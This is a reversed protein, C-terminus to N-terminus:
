IFPVFLSYSLPSIDACCEVGPKYPELSSFLSLSAVLVPCPIRCVRVATNATSSNYNFVGCARRASHLLLHFLGFVGRMSGLQPTRARGQEALWKETRVMNWTFKAKGDEIRFLACAGDADFLHAPTIPAGTPNPGVRVFAGDLEKPLNGAVVPADAARIENTQPEWDARLFPSNRAQRQAGSLKCVVHEISDLAASAAFRAPIVFLHLPILVFQRLRRLPGGQLSSPVINTSPHGPHASRGLVSASSM